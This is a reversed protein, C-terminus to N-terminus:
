SLSARSACIAYPGCCPNWSRDLAPPVGTISRASWARKSERRGKGTPSRALQPHYRDHIVDVPALGSAKPEIMARGDEVIGTLEFEDSLLAKLGEAMM